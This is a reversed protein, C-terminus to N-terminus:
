WAVTCVPFCIRIKRTNKKNKHNKSKTTHVQRRHWFYGAPGCSGPSKPWGGRVLLRFPARDSSEIIKQPPPGPERTDRSFLQVKWWYKQNKTTICTKFPSAHIQWVTNCSIVQHVHYHFIRIGITYYFIQEEKISCVTTKSMYRSTCM